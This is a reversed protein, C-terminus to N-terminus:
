LTNARSIAAVKTPAACIQRHHEVVQLLFQKQEEDRTLSGNFQQILAVGREAFDNVVKVSRCIDQSRKYQELNDWESPDHELFEEDLMLIKFFQLSSTTVFNHLSHPEKFPYIRKLPDESGVNQRLAAVMLRKEEHSVEEDFFAFAILHESLYWLHRDFATTAAKAVNKDPYLFLESLLDLDNRPAGTASPCQFWYRVYIHTVFISVSKLHNWVTQGYSASSGRRSAKQQKQLNYQNRFLVMKISYIAKTMWRARHVAGPYLFHIGRPPIGGLFIITLELLERYDDRSQYEELECVAFAIVSDKWPAIVAALSQDELATCYGTHDIQPWYEKFHTFIEINPSKSVDHLSFVHALILELIHHRCALHLLKRGVKQEVRLCVGGKAGTNSATTDFCLGAIRDWLGWDDITKSIDNAITVATSDHLKPVSLLKVVNQGSVLIPLRDVRERGPGTYNEMIKGDWHLVLPVKPNFAVQVEAAFAERHKMRARRIASPSIILEEVDQKFHKAAAISAFVHAAKRDSINTSHLAAAVEPTIVAVKGRFKLVPMSDVGTSPGAENDSESSCVTNGSSVDCEDITLILSASAISRNSLQAKEARNAAALKRKLVRKEKLALARDIGLMTGRRGKERQAKLFQRDEEIKMVFMADRHAVDLLDNRNDVFMQQNTQNTESIRHSSKKLNQWESHLKRLHEVVHSPAKTPVRAKQWILLLKECTRAVSDKLSMQERDRYHFLVKMVERRSPLKSDKFNEETGGILWVASAARTRKVLSTSM